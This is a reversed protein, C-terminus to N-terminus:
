DDDDDHNVPIPKDRIVHVNIDGTVESKDVFMKFYRGLLELNGKKDSLKIKARKVPVANDGRGEMYTESTLESIAAAQDRTLTSLDLYATGDPGVTMYDAMNSFALKALERIVDEQKLNLQEMLEARRVDIAAAVSANALLRAGQENATEKSYGARIAAQTANFDLLYEEVFLKQRDNLGERAM